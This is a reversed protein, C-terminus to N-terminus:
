GAEMYMSQNQRNLLKMYISGYLTKQSEKM